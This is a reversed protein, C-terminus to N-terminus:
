TKDSLFGDLDTRMDCAWSATLRILTVQRKAPPCDNVDISTTQMFVQIQKQTGPTSSCIEFLNSFCIPRTNLLFQNSEPHDPDPIKAM